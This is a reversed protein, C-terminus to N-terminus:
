LNCSTMSQAMKRRYFCSTSFLKCSQLATDHFICGRIVETKMVLEGLCWSRSVAEEDDGGDDDEEDDEGEDEDDDTLLPFASHWM